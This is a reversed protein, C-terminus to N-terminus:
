KKDNNIEGKVQERRNEIEQTLYIVKEEIKMMKVHIEVLLRKAEDVKDADKIMDRCQQRLKYSSEYANSFLVKLTSLYGVTKDVCFMKFNELDSDVLIGFDSIKIM